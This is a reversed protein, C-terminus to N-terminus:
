GLNLFLFGACKGGDTCPFGFDLSFLASGTDLKGHLDLLLDELQRQGTLRCFCIM